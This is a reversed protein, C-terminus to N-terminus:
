VGLIGGEYGRHYDGRYNRIYDGKLLKSLLEHPAKVQSAFGTAHSDAQHQSNFSAELRREEEM